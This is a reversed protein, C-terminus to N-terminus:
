KFHTGIEQNTKQKYFRKDLTIIGSVMNCRDCVKRVLLDYVVISERKIGEIDRIKAYRIHRLFM